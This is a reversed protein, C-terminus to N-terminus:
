WTECASPPWSAGLEIRSFCDADVLAEVLLIPGGTATIGSGAVTGVLGEPGACDPGTIPWDVAGAVDCSNPLTFAVRVYRNPPRIDFGLLSFGGREAMEVVVGEGVSHDEAFFEFTETQETAESGGFGGALAAAAVIAIAALAWLSPSRSEVM